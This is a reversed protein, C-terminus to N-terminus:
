ANRSQRRSVAVGVLGLALLALPAPEPVSAGGGSITCSSGTCSIKGNSLAITEVQGTTSLRETVVYSSSLGGTGPEDFFNHTADGNVEPLGLAAGASTQVYGTSPPSGGANSAAEPVYAYANTDGAGALGLIGGGDNFFSAIATSHDAINALATDSNDCGGCSMDSAVAMASYKTSDFLSDTIDAAVSPDVNFFPIGLTTLVSTLEYGADFTLIPLTSGNRVFNSEAQLATQAASSGYYAHFDNDHGTLVINGAFASSASFILSLALWTTKKM